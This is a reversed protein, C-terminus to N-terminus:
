SRGDCNVALPRYEEVRRCVLECRRGLCWNLSLDCEPSRRPSVPAFTPLVNTARQLLNPLSPPTFSHSLPKTGGPDGIAAERGIRCLPWVTARRVHDFTAFICSHLLPCWSRPRSQNFLINDHKSSVSLTSSFPPLLTFRGHAKPQPRLKLQM